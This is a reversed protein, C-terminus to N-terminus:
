RCCTTPRWWAGNAVALGEPLAKIQYPVFDVRSQGELLVLNEWAANTPRPAPITGWLATPAQQGTVSRFPPLDTAFPTDLDVPTSPCVGCAGRVCARGAGCVKGCAGCNLNDVQADVCVGGCSVSGSPCTPEVNCAALALLAFWM